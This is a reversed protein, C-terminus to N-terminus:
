PRLSTHYPNDLGPALVLRFSLWSAAAKPSILLYLGKNLKLEARHGDCCLCGKNNNSAAFIYSSCRRFNFLTEKNRNM